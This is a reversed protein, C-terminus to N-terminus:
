ALSGSLRLAIDDGSSVAEPYTIRMLSPDDPHPAYTAEAGGVYAEILPLATQPVDLATSDSQAVLHADIAIETQDGGVDVILDQEVIDVVGAGSGSPSLPFASADLAQLPTAQGTSSTTAAALGVAALALRRM